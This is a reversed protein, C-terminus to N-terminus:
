FCAKKLLYASLDVRTEEVEESDAGDERAYYINQRMVVVTLEAKSLIDWYPLPLSTVCIFGIFGMKKNKELVRCLKKMEKLQEIIEVTFVTSMSPIVM